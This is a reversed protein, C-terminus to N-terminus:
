RRVEEGGASQLQRTMTAGRHGRRHLALWDVIGTIVVGLAFCGGLLALLIRTPRSFMSWIRNNHLYHMVLWMPIRGEDAVVGPMRYDDSDGDFCKLGSSFSIGWQRGAPDEFFGTTMFGRVPSGPSPTRM